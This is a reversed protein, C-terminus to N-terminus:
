RQGRPLHLVALATSWNTAVAQQVAALAATGSCLADFTVAEVQDKDNHVYPGRQYEHADDNPEPWLNRTDYSGGASLEILHDLEYRHAQSWPVGYAAM